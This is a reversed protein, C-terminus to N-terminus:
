HIFFKCNCEAIHQWYVSVDQSILSNTSGRYSRLPNGKRAKLERRISIEEVGIVVKMSAGFSAAFLRSVGTVFCERSGRFFLRAKWQVSIQNFNIKVNEARCVLNWGGCLSGARAGEVFYHLM